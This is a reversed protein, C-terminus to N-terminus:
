ITTAMRMSDLRSIAKAVLSISYLRKSNLCPQYSVQIIGYIAGLSVILLLVGIGVSEIQADTVEALATKQDVFVMLTWYRGETLNVRQFYGDFQIGDYPFTLHGKQNSRFMGEMESFNASVQSPTKGLDNPDDSAFFVANQDTLTAAGGAFRMQSVQNIVNQLPIDGLLAGIFRGNEIVPAVASIVKEGTVKDTYIESLHIDQSSKVTRYWDRDRFDYENTTVGDSSHNSMYSRGSEYTMIVNAIGATDALMRVQAVNESEGLRTSFHEAGKEVANLQSQVLQELQSVHHDVKNQTKEVLASVMNDRLSMANLSGLVILSLTVLLGVGLIIRSKFGLTM